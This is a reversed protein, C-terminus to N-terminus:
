ARPPARQGCCLATLTAPDIYRVPRQAGWVRSRLGLGMVSM